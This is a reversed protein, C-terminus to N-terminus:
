VHHHEKRHLWFRAVALLGVGCLLFMVAAGLMGGVGAFLDEYRLVAWLLFYLVGAAFPETRDHRLGVRMLWLALVIMMVNAAAVPVLVQPTWRVLDFSSHGHYGYWPHQPDYHNFLGSWGCLGALFLVMALPLWQRRLAGGFPMEDRSEAAAERQQGLIVALAAVAGLLGIALAAAYNEAPSGHRALRFVYDGFSLPVLVGGTILVGYLRYPKALPNNERHMEAILLLLSGALGVFYIPDVDWQWAVPQLVAWWALLPAYVGVAFASRKKYAWLLGPLVMLPLTWAAKPLCLGHFLWPDLGQFGLVETGVWIALLGAYLAHLLVTELGLAFPLVGLAWFWIGDPYHSQIHFIQAILWIASGYLICGLFFLVESGLRWSGRARLAFASGHLGTLAAFIVALKGTAPMAQWNYSVLLLAALGILLAALSSLAYMAMSRRRSAAETATEYIALIQDPQGNAVVGESRWVGLEGVLWERVSSSIPRHQM